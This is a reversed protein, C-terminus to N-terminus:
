DQIRLYRLLHEDEASCDIGVAFVDWDGATATYVVVLAPETEYSAADVVRPAAEPNLARLCEELEAVPLANPSTVYEDSVVPVPEPPPGAVDPATAADQGEAPDQGEAADQGEARDTDQATQAVTPALVALQTEFEDETYATGSSVVQVAAATEPTATLESDSDGLVNVGVLVAGGLLAFGAAVELVRARRSRQKPVAALPVVTPTPAGAARSAAERRLAADIRDAVDQPMPEVPLGALLETVASEQEPTLEPTSEAGDRPETV